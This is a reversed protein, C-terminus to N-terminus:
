YKIVPSKIFKGRRLGAAAAAEQAEKNELAQNRTALVNLQSILLGRIQLLQHSQHSALQNAFDLAKMHGDAGQAGSQLEELTIADQRLRRMQYDIGRFASDTARKQATSGLIRSDALAAWEAESCGAASYCSSTMYKETDKFRGLYNNISGLKTKYYDLTDVQNVLNDIVSSASDWTFSGARNSNKEMNKYQDILKNYQDVQHITQKVAELAVVIHQGLAAADIVPIGANGKPVVFALMFVLYKVLRKM